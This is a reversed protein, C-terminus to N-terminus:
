GVEPWSRPAEIPQPNIWPGDLLGNLGVAADYKRVFLRWGTARREGCALGRRGADCLAYAAYARVAFFKGCLSRGRKALKQRGLKQQVPSYKEEESKWLRWRPSPCALLNGHAGAPLPRATRARRPVARLESGSTRSWACAPRSCVPRRSTGGRAA